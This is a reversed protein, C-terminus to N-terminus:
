KNNPLSNFIQRKKELWMKFDEPTKVLEQMKKMANLHPKDNIKFMEIGHDKSMKAIAEFTDAYFEKDCAGGLQRCTMTKM